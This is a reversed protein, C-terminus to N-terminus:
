GVSPGTRRSPPPQETFEVPRQRLTTSVGRLAERTTLTGLTIGFSVALTSWSIIRVRAVKWGKIKGSDIAAQLRWISLPLSVVAIGFLIISGVPWRSMTRVAISVPGHVYGLLAGIGFVMLWLVTRIARRPMESVRKMDSPDALEPM